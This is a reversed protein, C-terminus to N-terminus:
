PLHPARDAAHSSRWTPDALKALVALVATRAFDLGKGTDIIFDARARKEADPIQRALIAELKAPNMGVRQLVRDRQIEASASVVVVADMGREGRTEYLLPIDLVVIPAGQASKFFALRDKDLLPHVVAELRRLADADALVRRGLLERDIADASTVGPFLAEVPGVASGGVGYARHVAADADYVPVGAEAFLRATTSKGMGISGTLGIRFPRTM